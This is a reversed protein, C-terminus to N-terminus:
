QTVQSLPMNLSAIVYGEQYSAQTLIVFEM